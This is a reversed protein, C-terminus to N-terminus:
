TFLLASTFAAVLCGLSVLRARGHTLAAICALALSLLALWGGGRVSLVGLHVLVGALAPAGWVAMAMLADLDGRRHTDSLM